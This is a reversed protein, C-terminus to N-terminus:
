FQIRDDDQNILEAIKRAIIAWDGSYSNPKMVVPKLDRDVIWDNHVKWPTPHKAKATHEPSPPEHEAHYAEASRLLGSPRSAVVSMFAAHPKPKAWSRFDVGSEWWEDKATVVAHIFAKDESKLVFNGLCEKVQFDYKVTRDETLDIKQLINYTFLSHKSLEQVRMGRYFLYESVGPFVEMIEDEKSSSSAQHLFISDRSEWLKDFDPHDVIIQTGDKIGNSLDLSSTFGNEDRTNAELERFVQWLDWFKGYETTFPLDVYRPKLLLRDMWSYEEVKMQIMEIRQGRFDSEKKQFTFKDKGIFLIPEISHRILVAIVYKLGTGFQGIPRDSSPKASLGMMTFSRIDILGPTTFVIM